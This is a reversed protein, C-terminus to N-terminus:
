CRLWRLLACRASWGFRVGRCMSLCAAAATVALRPVAWVVRVGASVLVAVAAVPLPRVVWMAGGLVGVLLRGGRHVGVPSAGSAGGDGCDGVRDGRCRSVPPGGL